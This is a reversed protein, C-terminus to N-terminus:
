SMLGAHAVAGYVVANYILLLIKFVVMVRFQIDGAAIRYVSKARRYLNDQCWAPCAM